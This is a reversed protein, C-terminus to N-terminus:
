GLTDHIRHAADRDAALRRADRQAASLRDAVLDNLDVDSLRALAEPRAGHRWGAEELTLIGAAALGGTWSTGAIRSIEILQSPRLRASTIAASLNSPAIRWREALTARLAGPDVADLWNRVSGPQPPDRWEHVGVLAERSGDIQRGVLAVLADALEVQALVEATSPAIPLDALDAYRDFATLAAAPAVGAARAATVVQVEPVRGRLLQAQLTSRSAGLARALPLAATPLGVLRAWDRFESSPVSM